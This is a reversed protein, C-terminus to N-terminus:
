VVFVLLWCVWWYYVLVAFLWFWLLWLWLVLWCVLLIELVINFGLCLLWWWAFYVFWCNFSYIYFLWLRVLLLSMLVFMALCVCFMWCVFEGFELLVVMFLLGAVTVLLLWFCCGCFCSFIVSLLYGFCCIFGWCKVWIFSSDAAVVLDLLM